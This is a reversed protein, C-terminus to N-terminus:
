EKELELDILDKIENGKFLNNMSFKTKLEKQKQEIITTVIKYSKDFSSIFHKEIEIQPINENLIVSNIKKMAYILSFLANQLVVRDKDKQNFIFKSIQYCRFLKKCITDDISDNFVVDYYKKFIAAKSTKAKAPDDYYLSSYLQLLYENTITDNFFTIEEGIKTLLGIGFVSFYKKAFIQAKDNAKLDVISIPNQSNTAKAITVSYESPVKYIRILIKAKDFQGKYEEYKTSYLNYLTAVTQGGNVINPNTLTIKTKSFATANPEYSSCIITVGNNLYCFRIPDNIFSAKIDDNIQSTKKLFRVNANLLLGEGTSQYFEMLEKLTTSVIIGSYLNDEISFISDTKDEDNKLNVMLQGSEIQPINGFATVDVFTPYIHKDICNIVENLKKHGEHIIGTTAFILKITVNPYDNDELLERYSIMKKLLSDNTTQFNEGKLFKECNSICLKIEDDTFTGTEGYVNKYKSQIIVLESLENEDDSYYFADIKNDNSGDTLSNFADDQNLFLYEMLISMSLAMSYKKDNDGKVTKIKDIYAKNKEVIAKLRNLQTQNITM